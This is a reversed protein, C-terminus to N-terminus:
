AVTTDAAEAEAVIQARVDRCEAVLAMWREAHRAALWAEFDPARLAPSYLFGQIVDCGLETLIQSQGETEVGEAVVTMNLSQGVRVVATAIALAGAESEINRMFSRDIKLERVPLQALRNLSSYGTGFDDMSLGIGAARIKNMTEIAIAHNSMVVSETVELMLRAPSLGNEAILASVLAPLEANEFNIPSLNVSVSPVNLGAKRWEAMQRCAERLSWIGIQEILGCEEALPIFRSPPVDGLVPDHWRALAEVGYLSGNRARIQPQYHLSLGEGSIAARLATSLALREDSARDMESSFFRYTSRGAQKSKYMASDAYKLLGDLDRANDPYMSIGASATVSVKDNALQIPQSLVDTIRGAVSAADDSTCNPMLVIFEDGGERSLVDGPRITAQLRRTAAILLEDGVAHGLTDNVDKFHDLDVFMVAVNKGAPCAAIANEMLQRMHTRNPLGTLADFYALRSIENRAEEREIALAGLHVCAQVISRHWRSPGRKERYYFTFTGIVRGDKARIPNIWCATLGAAVIVASYSQWSPDSAIDEVLVAEGNLLGCTESKFDHTIIVGDMAKAHTKPLSPAGLRHLMGASDIQTLSCVVDPAIKEVKRCLNDMVKRLPQEDALAELMYSQLSQLQKSETIDTMMSVLYKLHGDDDHIASLAALVWVENGSKDYVLLEQEASGGTQIQHYLQKLTTPSTYPGVLLEEPQCGAADAWTYGLMDTFADNVYCIKADSCAVYIARNTKDVVLGLLAVQERRKVDETVDRVFGMYTVEGNVEVRSISLSGWVESGDKREIKVERSQGVIRGDKTKRDRAIYTDHHPRIGAPVLVNVNHGLVERRDYGWLNEAAANFHIVNNDANIMVVAITAQEIGALLSRATDSENVLVLTM